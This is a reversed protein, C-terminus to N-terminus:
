NFLCLVIEFCVKLKLIDTGCGNSSPKYYKNKVPSGGSLM